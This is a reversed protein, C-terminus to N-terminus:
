RYLCRRLDIGEPNQNGWYFIDVLWNIGEWGELHLIKDESLYEWPFIVELSKELDWMQGQGVVEFVTHKGMWQRGDKGTNLFTAHTGRANYTVPHNGDMEILPSGWDVGEPAFNHQAVYLSSPLGKDFTIASHEVDGIHNGFMHKVWDYPFFYIYFVQITFDDPNLMMYYPDDEKM